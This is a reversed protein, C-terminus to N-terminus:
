SPLFSSSIIVTSLHTQEHMIVASRVDDPLGTPLYIKPKIIGLVFATSIEECEYINDRLKYAFALNKKLRINQIVTIGLLAATGALWLWCCTLLAWEGPTRKAFPTPNSTEGDGSEKTGTNVTAESSEQFEIIEDKTLPVAAGPLKSEKEEPSVKGQASQTEKNPKLPEIRVYEMTSVVSSPATQSSSSSFPALLSVPLSISVPCLLRFLVVSWLVYSFIKPLKKICARILLVCLIIISATVSMNLILSFATAM